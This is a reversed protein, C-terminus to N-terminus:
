KKIINSSTPKPITLEPDISPEVPEDANPVDRPEFTELEKILEIDNPEEESEVEEDSKPEIPNLEHVNEVLRELDHTTICGQIFPGKLYARLYLSTILSPFNDFREKVEEDQIVIPNKAFTKSSIIRKPSTPM